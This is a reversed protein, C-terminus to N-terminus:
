IEGLKLLLEQLRADGAWQCLRNQRWLDWDFKLNSREATSMIGRFLAVAEDWSMDMGMGLGFSFRRVLDPGGFFRVLDKNKTQIAEALITDGRSRGPKGEYIDNMEATLLSPGFAEYMPVARAFTWDILGTVNFDEDVLIHDGKDDMHKLFFPGNDIGPEFANWQGQEALEKLYRFILYANVSYRTFLQRDCILELYREAWTAYYERANHFPGMQSFTGTRDSVVPGMCITGNPQLSLCGIQELPYKNITCLIDAYNNYLKRFQEESPSLFLLPTGPLEEILMYAVGVDNEPDNLLGFDYLKPSPVNMDKLWELTACESKLCLNSFNDSFSTYNQRLIRALWATGDSFIIRLHIHMGGMRKEGLPDAPDLRCNLSRNRESARRLLNKDNIMRRLATVEETQAARWADDDLPDNKCCHTPSMAHVACFRQKCRECLGIDIAAPASCESICCTWFRFIGSM